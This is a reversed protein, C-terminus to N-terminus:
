WHPAVRACAPSRKSAKRSQYFAAEPIPPCRFGVAAQRRPDRTGLGTATAASWGAAKEKEASQRGNMNSQKRHGLWVLWDEDMSRAIYVYLVCTM